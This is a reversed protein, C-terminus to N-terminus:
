RRVTPWRALVRVFPKAKDPQGQLEYLDALTEYPRRYRPAVRRARECAETAPAVKEAESIAELYLGQCKQVALVQSSRNRPTGPDITFFLIRRAGGDHALQAGYGDLAVLMMVVSAVLGGLLGFIVLSYIRNVAVTANLGLPMVAALGAGVVWGGVHAANDIGSVALGFLVMYASWRLMVQAVEQGGSGRRRAGILCAGILACVGGSSGITMHGISGWIDANWVHSVVMSLVGGVIFIVLMKKRDYLEEILPGVITLAYLNFVLHIIGGHGLMGTAFRWYEGQIIAISSTAGLQHLAYASMALASSPGAFMVMLVYYLFLTVVMLATGPSAKFADPLLGDLLAGELKTGHLYTKCQRCRVLNPTIMAGCKPCTQVESPM